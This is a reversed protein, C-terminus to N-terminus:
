WASRGKPFAYNVHPRLTGRKTVLLRRQCVPCKARGDTGPTLVGIEPFYCCPRFRLVGQRDVNM